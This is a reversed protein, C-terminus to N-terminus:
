AMQELFAGARSLTLAKFEAQGQAVHHIGDGFGDIELDCGLPLLEAGAGEMRDFIAALAARLQSRAAKRKQRDLIQPMSVVITIEWYIIRGRNASARPKMIALEKDPERRSSGLFAASRFRLERNVNSGHHRFRRRNEARGSGPDPEAADPGFYLRVRFRRGM